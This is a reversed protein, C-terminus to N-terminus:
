APDNKFKTLLGNLEEETNCLGDFLLEGTAKRRIRVESVSQARMSLIRFEPNRESIERLSSLDLPANM